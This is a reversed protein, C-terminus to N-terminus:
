RVIPSEHVFSNTPVKILGYYGEKSTFKAQDIKKSLRVKKFNELKFLQIEKQIEKIETKKKESIEGSPFKALVLKKKIKDEKVELQKIQKAIKQKIKKESIVKKHNMKKGFFKDTHTKLSSSEELTKLKELLTLRRIQYLKKKYLLLDSFTYKLAINHCSIQKSLPLNLSITKLSIKYFLAKELQQTINKIVESVQEKSKNQIEGPSLKAKVFNAHLQNVDYSAMLKNLGSKNRDIIRETVQNTAQNVLKRLKNKNTGTYLNQNIIQLVEEMCQDAFRLSIEIDKAKIQLPLKKISPAQGHEFADLLFIMKRQNSKRLLNLEVTNAYFKVLQNKIVTDLINM